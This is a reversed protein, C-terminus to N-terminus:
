KIMKNLNDLLSKIVPDEDRENDNEQILEKMMDTKLKINKERIDIYINIVLPVGICALTMIIYVTIGTGLAEMM